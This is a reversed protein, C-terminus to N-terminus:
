PNVVEEIVQIEVEKDVTKAIDAFTHRTDLDGNEDVIAAEQIDEGNADGTGLRMTHRLRGTGDRGASAENREVENGLATQTEKPPSDDTGVAIMGTETLLFDRVKERGHNLRRAPM